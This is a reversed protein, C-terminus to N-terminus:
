PRATGLTITLDKSNLEEPQRTVEARQRAGPLNQNELNDPKKRM